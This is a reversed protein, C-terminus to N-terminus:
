ERSSDPCPPLQALAYATLQRHLSPLSVM